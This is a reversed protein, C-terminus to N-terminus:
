ECDRRIKTILKDMEDMVTAARDVSALLEAIYKQEFEHAKADGWKEHTQEWQAALEETISLLRLKYSNVSM